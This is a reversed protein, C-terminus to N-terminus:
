RRSAACGARRRRRPVACDRIRPASVPARRAGLHHRHRRAGPHLGQRQGERRRHRHGRRRGRRDVAPARRVRRRRAAADAAAVSSRSPACCCRPACTSSRRSAASRSASSSACRRTSSPPRAADVPRARRGRRGAGDRGPGRGAARSVSLVTPPRRTSCWGPWRGPSTPPRDATRRDRRRGDADVLLWSTAPRCCCCGAPTPASCTSPLHGVGPRRRVAPRGISRSGPPASARVGAGRAARRAVRRRGAHGAGHHRGSRAGAGRRGRRGDRVPRRRHRRRRRAGRALAVGFIGLEALGDYPPRWADADGQEVDRAAAIAGSGAAWSRVLERAAFQEDTVTASSRRCRRVGVTQRSFAM